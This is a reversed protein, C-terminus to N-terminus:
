GAPAPERTGNSSRAPAADPIPVGLDSARGFFEYDEPRFRRTGAWYRVTFGPWITRNVGASDLYWSTCGGRTWIGKRLRHQVGANSRTQVASRVDLGSCGLGHVSAIAQAVYRAQCEIMFVVSNHGLGTNPGLLLFLNPFDTVTIGHHTRMGHARWTDRLTRGDRGTIELGDFADTVHFGTGHVIVDAPHEVGDHDVVGTETV